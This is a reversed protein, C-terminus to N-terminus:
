DHGTEEQVKARIGLIVSDFHRVAAETEAGTYATLTTSLSRHALVRRVTEYAGPNHDLYLKAGLHRMLHMNVTLGTLRHITKTFQHSFGDLSKHGLRGEGPFLWESEPHPLQPRYVRLYLEVLEATERPLPFELEEGNKVEVGAIVIHTTGRRDQRHRVHGDPGIRLAVLNARRIPAMLLLELALAIQVEVLDRVRNRNSQRVREYVRQPLLLLTEINARDTFPRLRERNKATLGSIPKRMLNRKIRTLPELAPGELKCWYRAIKHLLHALNGTQVQGKDNFYRLAATFNELTVLDGLRTIDRIDTGGIVLASVIQRIQFRYSEISKPRAPRPPANLDFPDPDALHGLYAEVEDRFSATITEWPVCYANRFSPVTLRVRPWGNITDVARNWAVITQRWCSRPRARFTEYQIWHGYAEVVRDSVTQPSIARDSCFRLFGPLACQLSKTNLARHLAQWEPTLGRTGRPPPRVYRRLAFNVDSSINQFRKPSMGVQAPVFGDLRRRLADHSAPTTTPASQALQCMRRLSSAINHRREPKLDPDAMVMEIVDAM